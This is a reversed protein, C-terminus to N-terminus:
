GLKPNPCLMHLGIYIYNNHAFVKV